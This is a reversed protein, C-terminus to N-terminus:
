NQAKSQYGMHVCITNFPKQEIVSFQFVRYHGSYEFKETWINNTQKAKNLRYLGLERPGGSKLAFILDQQKAKVRFALGWDTYPKFAPKINKCSADFPKTEQWGYSQAIERVMASESTYDKAAASAACALILILIKKM